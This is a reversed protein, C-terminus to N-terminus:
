VSLVSYAFMMVTRTVDGTAVVSKNGDRLFFGIRKNQCQLRVNREM